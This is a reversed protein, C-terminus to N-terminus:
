LEWEFYAINRTLFLFSCTKICHFYINKTKLMLSLGCAPLSFKLRSNEPNVFSNNIIGFQEEKFFIYHADIFFFVMKTGNIQPNVLQFAYSNQCQANKLVKIM